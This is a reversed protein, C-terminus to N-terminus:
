RDDKSGENSDFKLKEEKIKEIIKDGCIKNQKSSRDSFNIRMRGVYEDMFAPKLEDSSLPICLELDRLYYDSKHDISRANWHNTQRLIIQSDEIKIETFNGTSYDDGSSCRYAQGAIRDAIDLYHVTEENFVHHNESDPILFRKPAHLLFLEKINNELSKNECYLSEPEAKQSATDFSAMLVNLASQRHDTESKAYANVKVRTNQLTVSKWLGTVPEANQTQFIIADAELKNLLSIYAYLNTIRSILNM